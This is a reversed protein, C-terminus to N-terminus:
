LAQTKSKPNQLPPAAASRVYYTYYPTFTSGRIHSSRHTLCHRAQLLARFGPWVRSLKLIPLLPAHARHASKLSASSFSCQSILAM